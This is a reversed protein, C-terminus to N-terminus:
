HTLIASDISSGLGQYIKDSVGTVDMIGLTLGVMPNARVFLMGTNVSAKIINGTTPNNYADITATVASAIGAAKGLAETGKLLKNAAPSLEAQDAMKMIVEQTGMGVGIADATDGIAKTDISAQSNSIIEGKENVSVNNSNEIKAFILKEDWTKDSHLNVNTGRESTYAVNKGLYTEGSKTTSQSTANNDWYVSKDARSVWDPPSSDDGAGGKDGESTSITATSRSGLPKMGDPDIFYVPNDFAYNYPSHRRMQEALPDINMWRGLAADYNRAGFDYLNLGLEDQLEKGNYKYKNDVGNKATNYGKHLLGFAYYNNEQVIETSNVIGDNNKDEYSLRNNGLHDKYQYIYNFNGANYAVYGEPQPFQKLANNEYVFGGAYDTTIGGAVIKRQKGGTADYKYEITGGNVTVSTPLNLQNYSIATISKNADTKMNGNADYTYEVPLNAGNSFGETSNSSDEVKVLKNGGDYIYALNDMIGFQTAASNTNGARVISMINGNKDYSLAENYRGPATAANDTAQKLRNLNDYTYNYNKLSNDTNATKWFTQSINGNYLPTGATPANYNMQFAFLSSGLTNVNNIGKLWGRINYAYNITQLRPQIVKGGVGKIALQGLSNYTNNAIVEQAQNNITQKQTLLRGSDDYSYTDVITILADSGKKHTSTTEKVKGTFDLNTKVTSTTALYNNKSYNYISRGKADYYVVSTIWDPTGLVRIKSCTSLGKANTIPTVGYSTVATAGDLNMDLYNDYYNITFLDIATNPFAQNSYNVSTGNINLAASQKNEFMTVSETALQQIAARTTQTANTYEGTYVPRSFADYKTFLWKNTVKLNADQTLVVRNLKDYVISEWEKGPLKKEVLRNRYDYKYQYCLDNLVATTISGDAKPPIVYTLNGYADYVYYTDHKVGADYTRKLVVQGSKNKFEVVSGATETPAAATNEDFAVVKFLEQPTYYGADQLAIDYLALTSNWVASAKLWKVENASNLQYAMKVEHGGDMAWATGPAAQKLVRSLPAEEFRKQSFPNSVGTIDQPYNVSYYVRTLNEATARFTGFSGDNSSYPLYDKEQRGFSDYGIHTIIDQREPSGKIAINQKPRGLGDFYSISEIVEKDNLPNSVSTVPTQFTRSYIYNENSANSLADTNIRAVFTSGAPIITNPKLVISQTAVLTVTGSITENSKVINAPIQAFTKSTVFVLLLILRKFNNKM